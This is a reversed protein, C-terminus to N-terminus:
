ARALRAHRRFSRVEELPLPLPEGARWEAVAIGARQLRHRLADRRLAWVDYAVSDSADKPRETFPVPSVDLVAVDFGRARLDLLAGISRGDLLPSLALVLANAPL